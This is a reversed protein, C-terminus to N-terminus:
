KLFVAVAIAIVGIIVLVNQNRNSVQMQLLTNQITQFTGRLETIEAARQNDKNRVESKFERMEEKFDKMEQVFVAFNTELMTLRSEFTASGVNTDSAM